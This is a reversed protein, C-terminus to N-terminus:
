MGVKPTSRHIDFFQAWMKIVAFSSQTRSFGKGLLYDQVLLFPFGILFHLDKVKQKHWTM